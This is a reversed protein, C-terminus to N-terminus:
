IVMEELRHPAVIVLRDRTRQVIGRRELANIVRSVTERTSQVRFALATLKPPPRITQGDGIRALRLLEAYVRGAVSLTTRQAMKIATRRVQRMLMKSVALGMCGHRELLSLFDLIAFAAARVPDAAIVDAEAPEPDTEVIAGFFDGPLFEQLLVLQGSPSCTVAHVRGEVLLFTIVSVAGQEIIIARPPFNREKAHSAIDAATEQSCAFTSALLALLDGTDRPRVEARVSGGPSLSIKAGDANGPRVRSVRLAGRKPVRSGRL